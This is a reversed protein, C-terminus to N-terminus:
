LYHALLADDALLEAPAGDYVVRGRNLVVAQDALALVQSVYQEVLLLSVGASALMRLAQFLEEVVVPALGMSVEDVLIVSPKSLFARAMAVMQQEGGSLTGATRHLVRGLKPFIEVAEQVAADLRRGRPKQLELNDRVTLSRFVGRGEPILCLGSRARSYPSDTSIPQGDLVVAGGQLPVLGAVARLCTTKGAGNAGIMAVVSSKPVQISVHELVLAQGYSVDIESIDLALSDSPDGNRVAM